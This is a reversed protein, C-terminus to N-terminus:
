KKCSKKKEMDDRIVDAYVIAAKVIVWLDDLEDYVAAMGSSHGLEWAKREMALRVSRHLDAYGLSKAADRFFEDKRKRVADMYDQHHKKAEEDLEAKIKEVQAEYDPRTMPLTDLKAIREKLKTHRQFPELPVEPEYKSFDM